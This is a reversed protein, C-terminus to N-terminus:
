YSVFRHFFSSFYFRKVTHKNREPSIAGASPGDLAPVASTALWKTDAGKQTEAAGRCM